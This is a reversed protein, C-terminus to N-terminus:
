KRLLSLEAIIPFHDSPFRAGFRETIVRYRNAFIDDSVFIFDIPYPDANGTFDHFTGIKEAYASSGATDRLQSSFVAYAEDRETCNFDGVLIVPCGVSNIRELIKEAGYKEAAASRSDLHTNFFCYTKQCLKDTIKIYTCIRKCAADEYISPIDPTASLWFTDCSLIEYRDKKYFIACAEGKDNKERGLSVCDYDFLKKKLYKLQAPKVEQLGLLDPAYLTIQEVLAKRRWQWPNGCTLERLLGKSRRINYSMVSFTEANPENNM